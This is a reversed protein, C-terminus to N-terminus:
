LAQYTRVLLYVIRGFRKPLTPLNMADIIPIAEPSAIQSRAFDSKRFVMVLLRELYM